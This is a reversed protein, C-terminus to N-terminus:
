QSNLLDKPDTTIMKHETPFAIIEIAVHRPGAFFIGQGVDSNLLVQREGRTLAFIDGVMDIAATSQKLLLKM